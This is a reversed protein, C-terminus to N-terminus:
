CSSSEPNCGDECSDDCYCASAYSYTGTTNSFSTNAARYCGTVDSTNQDDSTMDDPCPKCTGSDAWLYYGALCAITPTNLNYTCSATSAVASEDPETVMYYPYTHTDDASYKVVRTACIQMQVNNYCHACTTSCAAANAAYCSPSTCCSVTLVGPDIIQDQDFGYVEEFYLCFVATSICLYTRFSYKM